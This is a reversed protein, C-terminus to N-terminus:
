VADEVGLEKCLRHYEETTNKPPIPVKQYEPLIVMVKQGGCDLSITLGAHVNETPLQIIVADGNTVEYEGM